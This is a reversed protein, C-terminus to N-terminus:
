DFRWLDGTQTDIYLTGAPQSASPAGAGALIGVGPLGVGDDGPPGKLSALWQEVTGVFGAAVAVEYASAGPPGSGGGFAGGWYGPM